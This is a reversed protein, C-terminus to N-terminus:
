RSVLESAALTRSTEDLAQADPSWWGSARCVDLLSRSALLLGQIFTVAREDSVAVESARVPGEMARFHLQGPSTQTVEVCYPGEMFHLVEYASENRTLRLLAAVWWGLIVVACDNWGPAPFERAPFEFCIAATAPGDIRMRISTEDLRIRVASM